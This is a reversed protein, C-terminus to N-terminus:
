TVRERRLTAQAKGTLVVSLAVCLVMGALDAALDAADVTRLRSLGQAAEEVAALSFPVAIAALAACRGRLGPLRVLWGHLWFAVLGFMSFHLAKDLGPVRLLGLPLAGAYAALSIVAVLALQPWLLWHWAPRGPQRQTLLGYAAAGLGAGLAAGALVDSPYHHGQYVRSLSVLLALALAPWGARRGFGLALVTATAFVAMAHGSPFSPFNPAPAILRVEVPRPRLAVYQIALTLALGLTLASLLAVGLRAVRQKGRRRGVVGLLVGSSPCRALGVTALVPLSADLWPHALTQNLWNLLTEDM